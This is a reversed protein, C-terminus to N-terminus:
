HLNGRADHQRNAKVALRCQGPGVSDASQDEDAHENCTPIETKPQSLLMYANVGSSAPM